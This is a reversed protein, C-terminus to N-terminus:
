WRGCCEVIEIADKRVRRSLFDNFVSECVLDNAQTTGRRLMQGVFQLGRSSINGRWHPSGPHFFLKVLSPCVGNAVVSMAHLICVDRNLLFVLREVARRSVELRCASRQLARRVKDNRLLSHSKSAHLFALGKTAIPREVSNLELKISSLEAGNVDSWIRMQRLKDCSTSCVTGMHLPRGILEPAIRWYSSEGHSDFSVDVRRADSCLVLFELLDFVSVGGPTGNPDRRSTVKSGPSTGDRPFAVGCCSCIGRGFVVSATKYTDAEIRLICTNLESLTELNGNTFASIVRNKRWEWLDRLRWGRIARITSPNAELFSSFHLIKNRTQITIGDWYMDTDINEDVLRKIYVVMGFEPSSTATHNLGRSTASLSDIVRASEMFQELTYTIKGLDLLLKEVVVELATMRM